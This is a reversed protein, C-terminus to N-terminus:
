GINADHLEAGLVDRKPRRSPRRVNFTAVTEVYHITARSDYAVNAIVPRSPEARRRALHSVEGDLVRHMKGDQHVHARRATRGHDVIARPRQLYITPARADGCCRDNARAHRDYALSVLSGKRQDKGLEFGIWTIEHAVAEVVMFARPIPIVKRIARAPSHEWSGPEHFVSEVHYGDFDRVFATYM